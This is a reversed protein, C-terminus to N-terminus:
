LLLGVGVRVGAGIKDYLQLSVGPAIYVRRLVFLQFDVGVTVSIGLEQDVGFGAGIAVGLRPDLTRRLEKTSDVLAERLETTIETQAEYLDRYGEAVAVAEQYLEWKEDDTMQSWQRAPLAACVMLFLLFFVRM